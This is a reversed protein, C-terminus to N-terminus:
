ECRLAVVPDVRTARRAPILSALLAVAALALPVLVFTLPDRAGVGFLFSQLVKTMAAAGPVGIGVGILIMWVARKLVLRIVSAPGAGLAMRIGFEHRRQAVSYAVVGYIGMAALLMSLAAFISILVTMMKPLTMADSMRKEMTAVSSLPQDRDLARLEARLAPAVSAPESSKTRVVIWSAPRPEQRFPAYMEPAAQSARGWPRVDAAVGVVTMWPADDQAGRSWKVRKGIPDLGGFYQNAIRENVIM